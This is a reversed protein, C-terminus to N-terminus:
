VLMVLMTQLHFNLKLMKPYSMLFYQVKLKLKEALIADSLNDNECFQSIQYTLLEEELHREKEIIELKQNKIYGFMQRVMGSSRNILHEIETITMKEVLDPAKAKILIDNLTLHEEGFDGRRYMEM